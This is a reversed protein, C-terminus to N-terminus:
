LARQRAGGSGPLDDAFESDMAETANNSADAKCCHLGFEVCSVALLYPSSLKRLRCTSAQSLGPRVSEFRIWCLIVRHCNSRVCWSLWRGTHKINLVRLSRTSSRKLWDESLKPCAAPRRSALRPLDPAILRLSSPRRPRRTAFSRASAAGSHFRQRRPTGPVSELGTSPPDPDSGGASGRV